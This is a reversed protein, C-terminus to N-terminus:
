AQDNNREKARERKYITGIYETEANNYRIQEDPLINRDKDARYVGPSDTYVPGYYESSLMNWWVRRDVLYYNDTFYEGKITGLLFKDNDFGAGYGVRLIRRDIM